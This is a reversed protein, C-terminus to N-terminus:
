DCAVQIFLRRDLFQERSLTSQGTEVIKAVIESAFQSMPTSSELALITKLAEIIVDSRQLGDMIQWSDDSEHVVLPPLICGRLLDCLMEKKITNTKINLVGRQFDAAVESWNDHIIEGNYLGLKELYEGVTMETIRSRGKGTSPDCHYAHEATSPSKRVPAQTKAM